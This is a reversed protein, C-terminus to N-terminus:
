VLVVTLGLPGHAGIVMSQEIDATKSPGAIFVGFPSAGMRIRAYAEHMDAVLDRRNLLVVLHQAIFPVAPIALDEERIWMAGNEAVGFEARILAVEVADLKAPECEAMLVPDGPVEEVRSWLRGPFERSVFAALSGDPREVIRARAQKLSSEFQELRAADSTRFVPIDPMPSEQLGLQRIRSLIKEKDSM